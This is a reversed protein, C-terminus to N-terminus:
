LAMRVALIVSWLDRKRRNYRRREKQTPSYARWREAHLPSFLTEGPNGIRGRYLALFFVKSDSFIPAPGWRSLIKHIVASGKMVDDVITFLTTLVTAKDLM